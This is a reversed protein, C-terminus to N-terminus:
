LNLDHIKDLQTVFQEVFGKNFTIYGVYKKIPNNKYTIGEKSKIVQPKLLLFKGNGMKFKLNKCMLNSLYAGVKVQMAKPMAGITGDDMLLHKSMSEEMNEGRKAGGKEKKVIMTEKLQKDILKGLDLFLNIAPVKIDASTYDIDYDKTQANRAAENETSKVFSSMLHRM